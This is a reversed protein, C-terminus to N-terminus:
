SYEFKCMAGVGYENDREDIDIPQLFWELSKHEIVVTNM